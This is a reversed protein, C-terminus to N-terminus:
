FQKVYSMGVAGNQWTPLAMFKMPKGHYFKRKLYPYVLYSIKTSLIGFGAGAVINSFWHDNNYVRLIGTTTAAAYGAVGYWPSVDGYEQYMFEAAAFATATHGSPFSQDDMGSPRLQHTTNKFLYVSGAMLANSIAYMISRDAFSNKGKAGALNLAYVAVAPAFQLYNDIKTAFRPYDEQMDRYVFRDVRKVATNGLATFGYAIFVVPPILSIINHNKAPLVPDIDAATRLSDALQVQGHVAQVAITLVFFIRKM